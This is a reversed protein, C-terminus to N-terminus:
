DLMLSIFPRTAPFDLIKRTVNNGFVMSTLVEIDVDYDLAGMYGDNIVAFGRDITYIHSNQGLIPDYVKINAKLEPYSAALSRLLMYVNIIRMSGRITDIGQPADFYGYVEIPLNGYKKRILSLAGLRADSDRALVDTIRVSTNDVPIAFVVAAENGDADSLIYACGGDISIDKLIHQWQERSHQICCPRQMMMEQFLTYAGDASSADTATYQGSPTFTHASSYRELNIHFAPSFGLNEYFRYLGDNAPILTCVVDGRKYSQRLAQSMLETM